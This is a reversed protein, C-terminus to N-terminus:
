PAESSIRIALRQHLIWLEAVEVAVAGAVVKKAKYLLENRERQTPRVLQAGHEFLGSRQRRRCAHQEVSQVVVRVNHPWHLTLDLILTGM